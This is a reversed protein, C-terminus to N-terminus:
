DDRGARNGGSQGRDNGQGRDYGHGNQGGSVNSSADLEEESLAAIWDRIERMTMGQVDQASVTPDLAQLELLVRYKGYSLGADHAEQVAEPPAMCCYVNSQGSTCRQTEELVKGSQADDETGVVTITLLEEESLLSTIWDNELIRRIAQEYPLFRIELSQVLEQGDTNRGEISVVVGMRNVGLELSPNIDVSVTVTPTLYLWGGGILVFLLCAAAAVLWPTRPQRRGAYGHTKQALFDRTKEKLAEEAHVAGLAERLKDEM